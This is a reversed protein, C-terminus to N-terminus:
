KIYSEITKILKEKEKMAKRLEFETIRTNHPSAMHKEMKELLLLSTNKM